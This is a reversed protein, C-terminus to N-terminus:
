TLKSPRTILLLEPDQQFVAAFGEDREQANRQRAAFGLEVLDASCRVMQEWSRLLVRAQLVGNVGSLGILIEDDGPAAARQELIGRARLLLPDSPTVM